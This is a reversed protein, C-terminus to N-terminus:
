SPKPQCCGTICYFGAPCPPQTPLGCAQEGGPCQEGSGGDPDFCEPPLETKGLCLECVDCGNLCDSVPTCPHCAVPDGEKGLACTAVGDEDTTGIFVFKGSGPPLECCGFCDCGNPILPGCVDHCLKSQVPPCEANPPPPSQYPCKVPQPAKPDCQADWKCDDNGDGSDKDFYCDLKCPANNAGPIELSFGEENNHCPGLCDPDAADIKGDGDDDECNACAYVKNQECAVPVCQGNGGTGWAGAGASGGSGSVGGAGATGGAAAGQGQAAAGSTASTTAPGTADESCSAWFAVGLPVALSGLVVVTRKTAM